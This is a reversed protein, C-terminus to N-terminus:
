IWGIRLESHCFKEMSVMSRPLELDEMNEEWTEGRGKEERIKRRSM